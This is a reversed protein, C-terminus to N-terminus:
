TSTSASKMLEERSKVDIAAGTAISEAFAIAYVGCSVSDSQQPVDVVRVRDPTGPYLWKLSELLPAEVGSHRVSDMVCVEGRGVAM